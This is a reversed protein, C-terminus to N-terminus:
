FGFGGLIGFAAFNVETQEFNTNLSTDFGSNASGQAFSMVQTADFNANPTAYGGAAGAHFATSETSFPTATNTSGAVGLSGFVAGGNSGSLTTQFGSGSESTTSGSGNFSFSGNTSASDFHGAVAGGVVGGSPAAMAPVSVVAAAALALMKIMKM